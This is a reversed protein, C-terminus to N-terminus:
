IKLGISNGGSETNNSEREREYEDLLSSDISILEDFYCDDNEKIAVINYQRLSMMFDHYSRRSVQEFDNVDNLSVGNLDTRVKRYFRLIQKEMGDPIMGQEELAVIARDNLEFCIGLMCASKDALVRIFSILMRQKMNFGM